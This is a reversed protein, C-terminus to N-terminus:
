VRRVRRPLTLPSPFPKQPYPPAFNRKKSFGLFGTCFQSNGLFKPPKKCLRLIQPTCWIAANFRRKHTHNSACRAGRLSVTACFLCAHRLASSIKEIFPHFLSHVPCGTFPPTCRIWILLTTYFYPNGPYMTVMCGPLGKGWIRTTETNWETSIGGAWM